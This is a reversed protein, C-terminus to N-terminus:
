SLCLPCGHGYSSEISQICNTNREDLNIYISKPRIQAIM